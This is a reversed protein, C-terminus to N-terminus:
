KFVLEVSLALWAYCGADLPKEAKEGTYPAKYKLM